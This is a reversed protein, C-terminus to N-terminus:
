YGPYPPYPQYGGYYPPPPPAFYPPRRRRGLLEGLLITGVYDRFLRRRRRRRRGRQRMMEEDDDEEYIKEVAEEVESCIEEVMEKLEEKCPIHDKGHKHEMKDCCDKLVPMIIFYTRPYMGQLREEGDDMVPSLGMNPNPNPNNPSRYMKEKDKM